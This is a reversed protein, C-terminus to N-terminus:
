GGLLARGQDLVRAAKALLALADGRPLGVRVTRTEGYALAAVGKLPFTVVFVLKGTPSLEDEVSVSVRSM